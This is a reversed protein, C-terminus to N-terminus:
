PLKPEKNSIREQSKRKKKNFRTIHDRSCYTLNCNAHARYDVNRDLSLHLNDVRKKNSKIITELQSASIDKLVKNDANCNELFKEFVWSM